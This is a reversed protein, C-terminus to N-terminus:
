QKSDESCRLDISDLLKSANHVAERGNLASTDAGVSKASGPDSQFVLGGVMVGISKNASVKRVSRILPTLIEASEGASASLGIVDFHSARLTGVIENGSVSGLNTVRWGARHFFESVMLVGFTHQEGPSVALLVSRNGAIPQTLYQSENSLSYILQQLCGLGITVDVFDCLDQEWLQGLYQAAPSLLKLYIEQLSLGQDRLSEIYAYSVSTGQTVVLAAFHEIEHAGIALSDLRAEDSKHQVILHNMMLRPVIETEIAQNVDNLLSNQSNQSRSRPGDSKRARRSSDFLKQQWAEPMMVGCDSGAKMIQKFESM